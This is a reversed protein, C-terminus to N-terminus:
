FIQGTYETKKISFEPIPHVQRVIQEVASLGQNDELQDTFYYIYEVDIDKHVSAYFPIFQISKQVRLVFPM